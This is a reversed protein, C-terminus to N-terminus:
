RTGHAARPRTSAGQATSELHVGLWVSSLLRDWPEARLCVFRGWPGGTCVLSHPSCRQGTLGGALSCGLFTPRPGVVWCPLVPWRDPPGVEQPRLSSFRWFVAEQSKEWEIFTKNLLFFFLIFPSSELGPHYNGLYTQKKLLEKFQVHKICEETHINWLFSLILAFLWNGIKYNLWWSINLIVLKKFYLQIRLYIMEFIVLM